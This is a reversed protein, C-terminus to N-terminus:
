MYVHVTIQFVVIHLIIIIYLIIIIHYLLDIIIIFVNHVHPNKPLISITQSVYDGRMMAICDSRKM